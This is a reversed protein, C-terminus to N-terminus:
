DEKAILIGEKFITAFFHDNIKKKEALRSPTIPILTFSPKPRITRISRRFKRASDLQHNAEDSVICLDVDSDPRADGRAFSGFLYIKRVHQSKDFAQLCRALTDNKEQLMEPINKTLVKM